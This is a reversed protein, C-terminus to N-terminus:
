WVIGHKAYNHGKMMAIRVAKYFVELEDERLSRGLEEEVKIMTKQLIAGYLHVPISM